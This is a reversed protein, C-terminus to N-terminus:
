SRHNVKNRSLIQRAQEILDDSVGQQLVVEIRDDAFTERLIGQVVREMTDNLSPCSSCSGLFRIRITKDKVEILEIDGGHQLLLPRVRKSLVESVSDANFPLANM